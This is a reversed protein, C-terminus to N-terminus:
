KTSKGKKNKLTYLDVSYYYFLIYFFETCKENVLVYIYYHKWYLIKIM